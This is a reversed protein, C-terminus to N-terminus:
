RIDHAYRGELVEFLGASGWWLLILDSLRAPLFYLITGLLAVWVSVCYPCKIWKGAQGAPNLSVRWQLIVNGPGDDYMLLHTVRYTFLGVLM